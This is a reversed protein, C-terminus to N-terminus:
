LTFPFLMKTDHPPVGMVSHTSFLPSLYYQEKPHSRTENLRDSIIIIYFFRVIKAYSQSRATLFGRIKRAECCSVSAAGV